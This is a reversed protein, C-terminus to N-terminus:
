SKAGVGWFWRSGGSGDLPIANPDFEIFVVGGLVYGIVFVNNRVTACRARYEIPLWLINETGYKVWQTGVNLPCVTSTSPLRNKFRPLHELEFIGRDTELYSGNSAFTLHIIQAETRLVQITDKSNIDWLRVISDWSVSALLQNDPSFAVANVSGLHGVLTSRSVGTSPDWLRVTSDWSASALLQGDPSFAVANVWNSHGALTIRSAGTSPDWLRVTSDLSASALLQGDPSFAVASVWRSHGALTSRSAGTSPDWLRITNDNSGSALLQG